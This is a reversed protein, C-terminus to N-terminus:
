FLLSLATTRCRRPVEVGVRSGPGGRRDKGIECGVDTVGPRLGGSILSSIVWSLRQEDVFGAYIGRPTPIDPLRGLWGGVDAASVTALVVLAKLGWAVAAGIGM